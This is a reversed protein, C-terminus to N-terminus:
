LDKSGGDDPRYEINLNDSTIGFNRVSALRTITQVFCYKIELKYSCKYDIAVLFKV